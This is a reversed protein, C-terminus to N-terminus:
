YVLCFLLWIVVSFGIAVTVNIGACFPSVNLSKRYNNVTNLIVQGLKKNETYPSCKTTSIQANLNFAVLSLIIALKKM